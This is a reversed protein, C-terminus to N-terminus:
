EYLRMFVCVGFVLVECTKETYESLIAIAFMEEACEIGKIWGSTFTM